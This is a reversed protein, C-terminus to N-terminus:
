SFSKKFYKVLSMKGPIDYNGLHKQQYQEIFEIVKQLNVPNIFNADYADELDLVSYSIDDAMEMIQNEISRFNYMEYEESAQNFFTKQEDSYSRYTSDYIYKSRLNNDKAYSATYLYKLMGQWMAYTPNFGDQGKAM